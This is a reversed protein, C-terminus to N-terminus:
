STGVLVSTGGLDSRKGLEELTLLFLLALHHSRLTSGLFSRSTM